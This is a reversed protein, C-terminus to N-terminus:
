SFEEEKKEGALFFRIDSYSVTPCLHKISVLSKEDITDSKERLLKLTDAGVFASVPLIGHKVYHCLHTEITGQTLKRESAIQQVTSGAKYLDFSIKKTDPKNGRARKIKIVTDS